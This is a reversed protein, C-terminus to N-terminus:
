RNENRVQVNMAAKEKMVRVWIRASVSVIKAEREEPTMRSCDNLPNPNETDAPVFIIPIKDWDIRHRKIPAMAVASWFIYLGIVTYSILGRIAYQSM